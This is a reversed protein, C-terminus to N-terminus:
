AVHSEAFIRIVYRDDAIENWPAEYENVPMEPVVTGSLTIHETANPHCAAALVFELLRQV